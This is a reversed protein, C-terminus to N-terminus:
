VQEECNEPASLLTHTLTFSCKKDRCFRLVLRFPVPINVAVVATTIIIIIIIIIICTYSLNLNHCLPWIYCNFVYFRLCSYKLIHCYLSVSIDRLLFCFLFL